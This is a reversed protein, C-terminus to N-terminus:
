DKDRYLNELLYLLNMLLCSLYSKSDGVISPESPRFKGFFPLWKLCDWTNLTVRLLDCSLINEYYHSGVFTDTQQLLVYAPGQYSFLM